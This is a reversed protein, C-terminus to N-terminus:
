NRVCENKTSNYDIIGLIIFSARGDYKTHRMIFKILFFCGYLNELYDFLHFIHQDFRLRGNGDAVECSINGPSSSSICAVRALDYNEDQTEPYRAPTVNSDCLHHIRQVFCEWIYVQHDLVRTSVYSIAIM